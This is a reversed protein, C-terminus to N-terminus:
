WGYRPMPWFPNLAATRCHRTCRPTRRPKDVRVARLQGEHWDCCIVLTGLVPCPTDAAFGAKSTEFM